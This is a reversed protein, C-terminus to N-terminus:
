EKPMEYIIHVCGQCNLPNYQVLIGQIEDLVELAREENEYFGLEDDGNYICWGIFPSKAVKLNTAKCLVKGSQSRIWLDM